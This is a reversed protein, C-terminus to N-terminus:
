VDNVDSQDQRKIAGSGARVKHRPILQPLQLLLRRDTVPWHVTSTDSLNRTRM